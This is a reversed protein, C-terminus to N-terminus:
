GKNMDIRGSLGDVRGSSTYQWLYRPYKYDCTKNYQAVWIKWSKYIDNAIYHNLTDLNAYVMPTFGAAKITNCFSDCIKKNMAKGNNMARSRSLRGGFEWDFAVPLELKMGKIISIVYEAEKKAENINIAQSYHYVGVPLGAAKANAINKKFVKDVHLSFSKQSTYSSRLIVATVGSKKAKKFSAVSIEGQWASIDIVKALSVEGSPKPTPTPTPKPTPTDGFFYKNLFRQLSKVTEEGMEGDVGTKFGQKTLYTQLYRTTKSGWAGDVAKGKLGIKRQLAKTTARGIEGDQAVKLWRQMRCKTQYGMVGDVELPEDKPPTPTDGSGLNTRAISCIDTYSRGKLCVMGGNSQSGSKSTNGEYCWYKGDKAYAFIGIHRRYKDNKGFDFCVIDGAKMKACGAKKTSNSGTKKMIWKGGLTIVGDQAYAANANHPFSKNNGQVQFFLWALFTACWAYSGGSVAHGYFWTNYKVNNSNAPKEVVGVQTKALALVKDITKSM